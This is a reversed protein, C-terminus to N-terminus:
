QRYACINLCLLMLFFIEQKPESSFFGHPTQIVCTLSFHFIYFSSVVATPQDKRGANKGAVEDKNNSLPLGHVGCDESPNITALLAPFTFCSLFRAKLRLYAPNTAFREAVLKRTAAVQEKEGRGNQLENTLIKASATVLSPKAKLLSTLQKITFASPPLYPLTIELHPLSVGGKGNIWVDVKSQHDSFLLRSDFSLSDYPLDSQAERHLPRDASPKKQMVTSQIATEPVCINQAEEMFVEDPPGSVSTPVSSVSTSPVGCINNTAPSVSSHRSSCSQHQWLVTEMSSSSFPLAVAADSYTKTCFTPGLVETSVVSEKQQVIISAQPSMSKNDVLINSLPTQIDVGRHLPTSNISFSPMVHDTSVSSATVFPTSLPNQSPNTSPGQLTSIIVSSDDPVKLMQNGPINASLVGTVQILGSPTRIWNIPQTELTITPVWSSQQVWNQKLTKRKSIKAETVEMLAQAKKTPKRTRQAERFRKSSETSLSNSSSTLTTVPQVPATLQILPLPIAQPPLSIKQGNLLFPQVPGQINPQMFVLTNPHILAPTIMGQPHVPQSPLPHQLLEAPEEIASKLSRKEHLAALM